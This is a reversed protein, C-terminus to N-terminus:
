KKWLSACYAQESFWQYNFNGIAWNKYKYWNSKNNHNRAVYCVCVCVCVYVCM